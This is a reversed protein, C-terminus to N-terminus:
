KSKSFKDTTRLVTHNKQCKSKVHFWNKVNKCTLNFNRFDLRVTKVFFFLTKVSSTVLSNIERFIKEILTFKLLIWVTLATCLPVWTKRQFIGTEEVYLFKWLLAFNTSDLTLLFTFYCRLFTDNKFKFLLFYSFNTLENTEINALTVKMEAWNRSNAQYINSSVYFYWVEFSSFIKVCLM